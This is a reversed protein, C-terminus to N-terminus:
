GDGNLRELVKACIADPKFQFLDNDPARLIEVLPNKPAWITANTPGFLLLCPIGCAAALHSIGSDHGLYCACSRFLAALVPLPQHRAHVVSLKEAAMLKLFSDIETDEAEGSTILFRVKGELERHLRSAVEVWGKHTWNKRPSGSGAHLAILTQGTGANPAGSELLARANRNSAADVTLDVFPEELFLALKELPKALQVAAPTEPSSEDVKHPGHILMEVGSRVLNAEFYGDPDYLYSVVVSFSKFYDMLEPLLLAGPVFFSSLPGFEISRTRDALSAAKALSTAPEYGLIDIGADPLERRALQIAPLTLIFDGVAGGRIFLIKGM